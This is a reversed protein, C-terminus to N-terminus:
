KDTEEKNTDQLKEIISQLEAKESQAIKNDHYLKRFRDRLEEEQKKLSNFADHQMQTQRELTDILEHNENFSSQLQAVHEKLKNNENALEKNKNRLDVDNSNFKIQLDKFATQSGLLDKNIKSLHDRLTKSTIQEENLNKNAAKTKTKWQSLAARLEKAEKVNEKSKSDTDSQQLQNITAKLQENEDRLLQMEEEKSQSTDLKAHLEKEQVKLRTASECVAQMANHFVTYEEIMSQNMSSIQMVAILTSIIVIRNM